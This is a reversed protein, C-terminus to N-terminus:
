GVTSPRTLASVIRDLNDATDACAGLPMDLERGLNLLDATLVGLSLQTGSHRSGETSEALADSAMGANGKM